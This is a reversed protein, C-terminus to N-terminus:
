APLADIRRWLMFQQSIVMGLAFLMSADIITAAWLGPTSSGPDIGGTQRVAMRVGVLMIIALLAVPSAQALVHGTAPERWLRLTHARATGAAVGLGAALAMAAYQLIGFPPHPTFWLGMSIGLTACLPGIWLKGVYIRKPKRARLLIAAVVLLPIAFPLIRPLDASTM